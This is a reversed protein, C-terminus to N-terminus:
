NIKIQIPNTFNINTQSNIGNTMEFPSLISVMQFINGYHKVQEKSPLTVPINLSTGNYVQYVTNKFSNNLEIKRGNLFPLVFNRDPINNQNDNKGVILQVKSSALQNIVIKPPSTDPELLVFDANNDNKVASDNIQLTKPLTPTGVNFRLGMVSYGLSSEVTLSSQKAPYKFLLMTVEEGRRLSNLTLKKKITEKGSLEFKTTSITTDGDITYPIETSNSLINLYYIYTGQIDQNVEIHGSFENNETLSTGVDILSNNKNYLGYNVTNSYNEIHTAEQPACASLIHM